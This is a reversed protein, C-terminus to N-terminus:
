MHHKGLNLEQVRIIESRHLRGLDLILCILGLLTQLRYLGKKNGGDFLFSKLVTFQSSFFILEHNLAFLNDNFIFFCLTNM